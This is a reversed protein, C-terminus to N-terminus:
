EHVLLETLRVSVERVIRELNVNAACEADVRYAPLTQLGTVELIQEAEDRYFQETAPHSLVLKLCQVAEEFSEQARRIDALSVLAALMVRPSDITQGIHLSRRVLDIAFPLDGAAVTARSLNALAYAETVRDGHEEALLLADAFRQHAKEYSRARWAVRGLYHLVYRKILEDGMERAHDLGLRLQGEAEELRGINVLYAGFHVLYNGLNFANGLARVEDLAHQHYDRSEASDPLEQFVASLGVLFYIIAETDKQNRAMSLGEEFTAKANLYDGTFWWAWGQVLMGKMIDGLDDQVKLINLGERVSNHAPRIESLWLQIQAQAVLLHGLSPQHTPDERDLKAIAQAIFDAGEKLSNVFTFPWLLTNRSFEHTRAETVAWDWAARINGLEERQQDLRDKWIGGAIDQMATEQVELFRLYYLGHLEEAVRVHDPDEALKEQCFEHILPHLAYRGDAGVTLLSKNVLGALVRLSAGAVDGAARRRFGGRFVALTRLATQEVDELLQWSHEFTARLSRHREPLDRTSAQLIDLGREIEVVIDEPTLLRFWSAALEIALPHGDVLQCIRVFAPTSSTEVVFDARHNRISKVLLETADYRDLHEGECAPYTLGHIDFVRESLMDLRERSTVLFEIHPAETLLLSLLGVGALLHELNDLVLLLERERLHALLQRQPDHQQFLRVGLADAITYVMLEPSTVSVFSVFYVGDKYRSLSRRAVEIALRTKGVGGPGVITVLRVSRDGLKESLVEIESRRGIFPTAQPPLNHPGKKEVAMTRLEARADEVTLSVDLDYAKVEKQVEAVEFSEGALLLRHLRVLDDPRPEPAGSFLYAREAREAASEFAGESAEEEALSLQATRVREALLERTGYVWEELEIGWDKFVIGDLFKGTYLDLSRQLENQELARLLTQVDCDIESWIRGRDSKIVGPAGNRLRYIESALSRLPNAAGLYFLEALNRRHQSGELAVYALLLLSKPRTFGTGELSLGGLTRLQM